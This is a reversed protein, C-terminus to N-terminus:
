PDNHQESKIIRPTAKTGSAALQLAAQLMDELYQSQGLDNQFKTGLSRLDQSGKLSELKSLPRILPYLLVKILVFPAM